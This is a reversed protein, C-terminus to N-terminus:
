EIVNMQGGGGGGMMGSMAAEQAGAIAMQLQDPPVPIQVSMGTGGQAFRLGKFQEIQAMAAPDGQAQMEGLMALAPIMNNMATTARGAAEADTFNMALGLMADTGSGGLTMVASDLAGAEKLLDPAGPVFAAEQPPNAAMQALMQKADPPLQLGVFVPAGAHPGLMSSLAGDRASPASSAYTALLDGMSGDSPAILLTNANPMTLVTESGEPGTFVKAGAMTSETWGATTTLRQHLAQADFDGTVVVFAQPSGSQLSEASLGMEYVKAKGPFNGLVGAVDPKEEAMMNFLFNQFNPDQAQMESVIPALAPTGVLAEMDVRILIDAARPVGAFPQATQAAASNAGVVLGGVVLVCFLPTRCSKM